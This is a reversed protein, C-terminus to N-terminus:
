KKLVDFEYQTRKIAAVRAYDFKFGQRPSDLNMWGHSDRPLLALSLKRLFPVFYLVDMPLYVKGSRLGPSELLDKQVPDIESPAPPTGNHQDLWLSVYNTHAYFDQVTHTLRGFAIWASLVGPSLLAAIVYGRQENIYNRGKELANNDFHIEDHGIQRHLSDQKSNAALVVELARPSVCTGLAERTMEEHIPILM